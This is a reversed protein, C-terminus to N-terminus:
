RRTQISLRGDFSVINEVMYCSSEGPVCLSSYLHFGKSDVHHYEMNSFVVQELLDATMHQKYLQKRFDRSYLEASGQFISLHVINDYYVNEVEIGDDNLTHRVVQYKTPNVAVYLHYRKGEYFVVTDSKEVDTLTQVQAKNQEFVEGTETEDSKVLKVLEANQGNLWLLHETQKEIHYRNTGIYLTDEYVRFYSTMSTTDPYYVSDGQMKFVVAETDEDMWVGQLLAKAESSERLPEDAHRRVDCGTLVSSLLIVIVAIHRFAQHNIM